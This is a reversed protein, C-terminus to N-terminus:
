RAPRFYFSVLLRDAPYAQPLPGFARNLGAQEVAEMAASRFGFSGTHRVLEIDSVSGDRNIYFQVEAVDSQAGSPRRFYRNIQRQINALYAPDAFRAGEIRVDLDEGGASSPDPRQGTSPQPPRAPPPTERPPTPAAREPTAPRPTEPAPTPRQAPTPETRPPVPEPPTPQPPEPEPATEVEPEAEPTEDVPPQEPTWEGASQPPPSVIDVAYVRLQPLQAASSATVYLVGVVAAHVVASILFAFRLRGRERRSV